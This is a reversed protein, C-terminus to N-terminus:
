LMNLTRHPFVSFFLQKKSFSTSFVHLLTLPLLRKVLLAFLFIAHIRFMSMIVLSCVELDVYSSSDITGKSESFNGRRQICVQFGRISNTGHRAFAFRVRRSIEELNLHGIYASCTDSGCTLTSGHANPMKLFQPQKTTTFPPPSSSRVSVLYFYFPVADKKEEFRSCGPSLSLLKSDM